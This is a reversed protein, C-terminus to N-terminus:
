YDVSFVVVDSVAASGDTWGYEITVEATTTDAMGWLVDTLAANIELSGDAGVVAADDSLTLVEGSPLTLSVSQISVEFGRAADVSGAAFAGQLAVTLDVMAEDRRNISLSGSLLEARLAKNFVYFQKELVGTSGDTLTYQVCMRYQEPSTSAETSYPLALHYVGDALQAELQEANQEAYVIDDRFLQVSLSATDKKEIAFYFEGEGWEGAMIAPPAKPPPAPLEPPPTPTIIPKTPPDSIPEKAEEEPQEEPEDEPLSTEPQTQVPPSVDIDEAGDVAGLTRFQFCAGRLTEDGDASFRVIYLTDPTLGSFALLTKGPELPGKGIEKGGEMLRYGLVTEEDRVGQVDVCLEASQM